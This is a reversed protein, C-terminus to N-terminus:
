LSENDAVEHTIKVRKQNDPDRLFFNIIESRENVSGRFELSIKEHFKKFNIEIKDPYSIVEGDAFDLQHPQMFINPKKQSDAYFGILDNFVKYKKLVKHM